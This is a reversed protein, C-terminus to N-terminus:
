DIVVHRLRQGMKLGLPVSIFTYLFGSIFVYSLIYWDAYYLRYVFISLNFSIYSIAADAAAFVGAVWLLRSLSYRHAAANAADSLAADRDYLGSLFLALELIVAQTPYLIISTATFNGLILGGLLYTTIVFLALVGPRPVLTALSMALLYFIVESFIGTLLFSFPGMVAHLINYAVTSPVSVLSFAVAAYLAILIFDRSSFGGLLRKRFAILAIFGLLAVAAGVLTTGAAAAQIHRIRLPFERRVLEKGSANLAVSLRQVYDGAPMGSEGGSIKFLATKRSHPPLVLSSTLSATRIGTEESRTELWDVPLRSAGGLISYDVNLTIPFDGSNELEAGATEQASAGHMGLSLARLWRSDSDKISLTHAERKLDRRGDADAPISFRVLRIHREMYSPDLIWSRVTWTRAEGASSSHAVIVAPGEPADPRVRLRLLRFWTDNETRLTFASDLSHGHQVIDEAGLFELHEPLELRVRLPIRRHVLSEACLLAQVEAGRVVSTERGGSGFPFEIRIQYEESEAICVRLPIIWPLLLLIGWFRRTM